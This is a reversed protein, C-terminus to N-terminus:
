SIPDFNPEILGLLRYAEDRSRVILPQVTGSRLGEERYSQGFEPGAHPPAVVIRKLDDIAPLRARAAFRSSSVALTTVNTMDYLLRVQSRDDSRGALFGIVAPDIAALDDATFLDAFSLRLVKHSREFGLTM